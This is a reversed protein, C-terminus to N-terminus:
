ASLLRAKAVLGDPTWARYGVVRKSMEAQNAGAGSASKMFLRIGSVVRSGAFSARSM